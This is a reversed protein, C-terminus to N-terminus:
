FILEWHPITLFVIVLHYTYDNLATLGLLHYQVSMSFILDIRWVIIHSCKWELAMRIPFSCQFTFRPANWQRIIVSSSMRLIPKQFLCNGSHKSLGLHENSSEQWTFSTKRIYFKSQWESSVPFLSMPLHSYIYIYTYITWQHWLFSFNEKRLWEIFKNCKYNYLSIM